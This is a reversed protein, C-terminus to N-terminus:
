AKDGLIRAEVLGLDFRWWSRVEEQRAWIELFGLALTRDDDGLADFAALLERVQRAYAPHPMPPATTPHTAPDGFPDAAM